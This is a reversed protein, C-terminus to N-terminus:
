WDDSKKKNLGKIQNYLPVILENMTAEYTTKTDKFTKILTGDKNFWPKYKIDDTAFTIRCKSDKIEITLTYEINYWYDIDKNRIKYARDKYYGVKVLLNENDVRIVSKPSPYTLKVWEKVRTYIVKSHFSTDLSIVVPKVGDKTLVFVPAKQSFALGNFFIYVFLIFVFKKM